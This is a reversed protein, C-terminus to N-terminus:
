ALVEEIAMVQALGKIVGALRLSYHIEATGVGAKELAVVHSALCRECGNIASLVVCYLEFDRQDIGHRQLMHMRLNAPLKKYKEYNIFHISRYYINNMSMLSAAAKIANKGEDQMGQQKAFAELAQIVTIQGTAYAAALALQAIQLRNLQVPEAAELLSTLNLKIVKAYDPIKAKLADISM